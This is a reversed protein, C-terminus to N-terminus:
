LGAARCAATSNKQMLSSALTSGIYWYESAQNTASNLSVMLRASFLRSSARRISASCPWKM